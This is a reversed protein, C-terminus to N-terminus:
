YFKEARGELHMGFRVEDGWMRVAKRKGHDWGGGGETQTIAVAKKRGPSGAKARQERCATM